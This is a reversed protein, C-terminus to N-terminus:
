KQQNHDLFHKRLELSLTEAPIRDILREHVYQLVPIWAAAPTSSHSDAKELIQKGWEVFSKIMRAEYASAFMRQPDLSIESPLQMFLDGADDWWELLMGTQNPAAFWGVSPYNAAVLQGTQTSVAVAISNYSEDDRTNTEMNRVRIATSAISGASNGSINKVTLKKTFIGWLIAELRDAVDKM